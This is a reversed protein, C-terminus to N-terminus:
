LGSTLKVVDDLRHERGISHEADVVVEALFGNLVDERNAEGVHHKLRQPVVVVNVVDLDGHGLVDTYTATGTVVIADTCGAVYDLVM